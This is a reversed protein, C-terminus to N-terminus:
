FSLLHGTVCQELYGSQLDRIAADLGDFPHIEFHAFAFQYGQDARVAGTFGRGHFGNGARQWQSSTIDLVHAFADAALSGPIQDLLTKGHHGFSATHKGAHGDHFVQVHARVDAIVFM